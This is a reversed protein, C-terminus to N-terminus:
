KIGLRKKASELNITRRQEPQLPQQIFPAAGQGSGKEIFEMAEGPTSSQAPGYRGGAGYESPNPLQKMKEGPQRPRGGVSGISDWVQRDVNDLFQRLAAVGNASVFHELSELSGMMALSNEMDKGNAVGNGGFKVNADATSRIAAKLMARTESGWFLEGRPDKELLALAQRGLAKTRSASMIMKTAEQSQGASVPKEWVIDKVQREAQKAAEKFAEDAIRANIGTQQGWLGRLVGLRMEEGHRKMRGSEKMGEIKTQQEQKSKLEEAKREREALAKEADAIIKERALLEKLEREEAPNQRKMEGTQLVDSMGAMQKIAEAEGYAAPPTGVDRMPRNGLGASVAEGAMLGWYRRRDGRKKTRDKEQAKELDSLLNKIEETKYFGPEERSPGLMGKDLPKFQPRDPEPSAAAGVAVDSERSPLRPRSAFELGERLRAEEAARYAEEEEPTMRGRRVVVPDLNFERALEDETIDDIVMPM